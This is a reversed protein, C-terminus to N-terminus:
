YQWINVDKGKERIKDARESIYRQFNLETKYAESLVYDFVSQVHFSRMQADIRMVEKGEPDFFVMAPLYTINLQTAWEKATTHKGAPTIVKTDAFRNLQISKFQKVLTITEKDQLTKQHLLDCNKCDPKEFFVVQYKGKDEESLHSIHLQYAPKSFYSESQLKGENNKDNGKNTAVFNAYNGEKEKHQSVYQLALRFNEPPVYGELKLAVKKNEDFFFLTPTYAVSLAEAFSKETYDNGGVSVVERNGWMNIAIIEFNKRFTDVIDQQAFNDDWLQACYPCGPQWFYVVLRKGQEASDAIDEELDLFSEKFWSPHTATKAGTYKGIPEGKNEKSELPSIMLLTIMVISLVSLLAHM